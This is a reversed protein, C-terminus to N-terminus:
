PLYVIVGLDANNGIDLEVDFSPEDVRFLLAYEAFLAVSELIRVEVGLLGGAYVTFNSAAGILLQTGLIGGAYPSTTGKLFHHEYAASLGLLLDTTAPDTHFDLDLLGRVVSRDSLWLKMGLGSQVGDGAGALSFPDILDFILGLDRGGLFSPTEGSPAAMPSAAATADAGFALAAGSVILALALHWRTAKM